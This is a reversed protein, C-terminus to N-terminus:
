EENGGNGSSPTQTAYLESEIFALAELALLFYAKNVDTELNNNRAFIGEEHSQVIDYKRREYDIYVTLEIVTQKDDSSKSTFKYESNLKRNM